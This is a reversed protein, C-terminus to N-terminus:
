REGGWVRRADRPTGRPRSGSDRRPAPARVARAPAARLRNKFTKSM